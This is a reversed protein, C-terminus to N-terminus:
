HGIRECEIVRHGRSHVMGVFLCLYFTCAVEDLASVALWNVKKKEMEERVKKVKEVTSQGSYCTPHAFAPQQPYAPRDPWCAAFVDGGVPVIEVAGGRQGSKLDKSWKKYSGWSAKQAELGVRGGDPLQELIWAPLTPTDPLGSKM